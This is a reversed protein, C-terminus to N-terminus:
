VIGSLPVARPLVLVYEKIGLDCDYYTEEICAADLNTWGFTNDKATPTDGYLQYLDKRTVVGYLNIYDKMAQLVWAATLKNKFIINM